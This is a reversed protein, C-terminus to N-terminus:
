RTALVRVTSSGAGSSTRTTQARCCVVDHRVRRAQRVTRTSFLRIQRRTSANGTAAVPASKAPQTARGVTAEGIPTAATPADHRAGRAMSSRWCARRASRRSVRIRSAHLAIPRGLGRARAARGTANAASASTTLTTAKAAHSCARATAFSPTRVLHRAPRASIPALAGAPAAARSTARTAGGGLPTPPLTSPAPPWAAAMPRTSCLCAAAAAPARPMAAARLAPSATGHAASRSAARATAVRARAM